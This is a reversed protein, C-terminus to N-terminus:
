SAEGQYRQLFPAQPKELFAKEIEDAKVWNNRVAAEILEPSPTRRTILNWLKKTKGGVKVTKGECIEALSMAGEPANLPMDNPTAVWTTSNRNVQRYYVDDLQLVDIKKEVAYKTVATKIDVAQKQLPEIQAQLEELQGLLNIADIESRIAIGNYLANDKKSKKTMETRHGKQLGASELTAM